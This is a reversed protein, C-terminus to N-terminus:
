LVCTVTHVYVYGFGVKILLEKQFFNANGGSTM